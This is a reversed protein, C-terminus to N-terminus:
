RGLLISVVSANVNPAAIDPRGDLNFDGVAMYFPYSLGVYSASQVFVPTAAGRPTRNLLVQTAGSPDSTGEVIDPLGDGDVDAIVIQAGAAAAMTFTAPSSVFGLTGGSTTNTFVSIVPTSGNFVIIDLLGDGNVDALAVFSANGAISRTLATAFSPSGASSTNRLITVGGSQNMVVADLKGDRDLDGLALGQPLTLPTGSPAFSPTSSGPATQNLLVVLAGPSGTTIAVVDVKGDGDVDGVEFIDLPPLGASIASSPAPSPVNPAGITVTVL